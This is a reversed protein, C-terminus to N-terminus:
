RIISCIYNENKILTWKMNNVTKTEPNVIINIIGKSLGIGEIKLYAEKATWIEFFREIKESIYETERESCVRKILKQNFPKIIEIDIGIPKSDIVVAVLDGSHSVSIYGNPIDFYPKGHKTRKIKPPEDNLFKRAAKISLIDGLVSQKFHLENKKSVAERRSKDTNQRWYDIIEGNLSNVNEIFVLM